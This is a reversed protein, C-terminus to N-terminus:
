RFLFRERLSLDVYLNAESILCVVFASASEKWVKIHESLFFLKSNWSPIIQQKNIYFYFGVRPLWFRRGAPETKYIRSPFSPHSLGIANLAMVRFTYHVYPSLKLHATTKTGPVETLNHWHGRHHLSDEYQILFETYFLFSLYLFCATKGVYGGEATSMLVIPDLKIMNGKLQHIQLKYIMLIKNM